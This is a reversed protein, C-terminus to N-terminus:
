KFFNIMLEALASVAEQPDSVNKNIVFCESAGGLLVDNGPFNVLKIKNALPNSHLKLNGIVSSKAYYMPTRSMYFDEEVKNTNRWEGGFSGMNMFNLFEEM